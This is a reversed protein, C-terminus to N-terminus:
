SRRSEAMQNHSGPQFQAKWASIEPLPIHINTARTGYILAVMSKKLEERKVTPINTDKSIDAARNDVEVIMTRIRNNLCHIGAHLRTGFYDINDHALIFNNYSGFDHNIFHVKNSSVLSSVYNSDEEAQLWVFVNDYNKCLTELMFRDTDPEKAYDTVTTIVDQSKDKPITACFDPTLNWMTVCSTNLVNTIGIQSLHRKTNEDRVSHYYSSNLLYRLLRKTYKDFEKTEHNIARMGTALLCLSNRYANLTVRPLALPCYHNMDSTLINTGCVFKIATKDAHEVGTTHRHTPLHQLHSNPYLQNFVKNVYHMIIADGSNESYQAVDLLIPSDASILTNSSFQEQVESLDLRLNRWYHKMWNM